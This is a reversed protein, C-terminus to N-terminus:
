FGCENPVEPGIAERSSPAMKKVAAFVLLPGSAHYSGIGVSSESSRVSPLLARRSRKGSVAHHLVILESRVPFSSLLSNQRIKQHIEMDYLELVTKLQASERIRLKYLSELIDDSPIKSMSLLFEDWRADFEQINDDHLTVSFLDAYDSVTDHAGTVRLYEYIMSAIQRGRPFRDEKQAKQEELSVKKKFQSNQIIKNLASAIKADLMEFHPFDNWFNIAFEELSDVMEVGKIWLM